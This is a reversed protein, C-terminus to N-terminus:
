RASRTQPVQAIVDDIIGDRLRRRTVRYGVWLGTLSVGGGVLLGAIVQITIPNLM